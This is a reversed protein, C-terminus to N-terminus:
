KEIPEHIVKLNNKVNRVGPTKWTIKEALEKQYFSDVTGKLIIDNKYIAIVISAYDLAVHNKLARKINKKNIPIILKSDVSINNVVEKVGILNNVARTAAEKQYHWELKGTLTVQGNMVQVYISNNITNWNWKFADLVAQAITYDNKQKWSSTKIEVSTRM